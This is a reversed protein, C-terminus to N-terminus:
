AEKLNPCFLSPAQDCLLFGAVVGFGRAVEPRRDDKEPKLLCIGLGAIREGGGVESVGRGREVLQVARGVKREVDPVEVERVRRQM